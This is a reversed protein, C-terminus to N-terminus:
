ELSSFFRDGRFLYSRESDNSFVVSSSRGLIESRPIFSYARSDASHDRNDGLVFYRGEPVVVPGYSRRSRSLYSDTLQALHTADPLAEAVIIAGDSREIVEHNIAQGNISLRNNQMVVTDGPVGVIRKILRKGARSSDIIVIDGRAPEGLEALNIETFPVKVDYALKNVWVKDGDMLTPLMSAGSISSLDAIASKFFVISALVLLFRRNERWALTLGEGIRRSWSDDAMALPPRQSAIRQEAAGLPSQSDQPQQTGAEVGNGLQEEGTQNSGPLNPHQEDM